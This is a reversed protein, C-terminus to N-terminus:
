TAMVIFWVWIALYNNVHKFGCGFPWVHKVKAMDEYRECSDCLKALYSLQDPELEELKANLEAM